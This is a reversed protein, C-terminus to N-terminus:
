GRPRPTKGLEVTGAGEAEGGVPDRKFRGDAPETQPEGREPGAENAGVTRGEEDQEGHHQATDGLPTHDPGAFPASAKDTDEAVAPAPQKTGHLVLMTVAGAVILLVVIGIVVYAM